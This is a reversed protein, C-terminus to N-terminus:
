INFESEHFSAEGGITPYGLQSQSSQLNDLKESELQQTKIMEM